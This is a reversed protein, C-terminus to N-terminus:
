TEKALSELEKLARIGVWQRGSELIGDKELQSMVRSVSEPTAGTMDALDDRSLPVDILLMADQQRGLKQALKVLTAALRKEVPLSSLQLVRQNAANLRETMIQLTKLALEPHEDLTQRFDESRISLICGPTQAQATDPYAAVGLTALNGFFEGSTLIDLLVNRRNATHQLLKVKGEAVVFLREAPDGAAYIWEGPQYGVEVFRQNIDALARPTLGTFFPLRGLIKLRLDISCHQPETAVLNVPSKRRAKM